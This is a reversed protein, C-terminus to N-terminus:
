FSEVWGGDPSQDFVEYICSPVRIFIKIVKENQYQM